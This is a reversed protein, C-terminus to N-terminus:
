LVPSCSIVVFGVCKSTMTSTHERTAICRATAVDISMVVESLELQNIVPAPAEFAAAKLKLPLEMLKVLL